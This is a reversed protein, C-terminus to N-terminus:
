ENHLKDILDALKEASIERYALLTSWRLMQLRPEHRASISPHGNLVDAITKNGSRGTTVIFHIQADAALGRKPYSHVRRKPILVGDAGGYKEQAVNANYDTADRKKIIRLEPQGVIALAPVDKSVIAGMGVIAGEGITVGPLICANMGIWANKGIRVSNWRRERGYPLASGPEYRHDSCYITVRRSIHVNDEIVLGGEASVYSGRGIHVNNGVIMATPRSINVDSKIVVGEGCSQLKSKLEEIEQRAVYDDIRRAFRVAKILLLKFVLKIKKM